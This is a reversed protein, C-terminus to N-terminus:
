FLKIGFAPLITILMVLVSVVFSVTAFILVNNMRKRLSDSKSDLGFLAQNQKANEEIVVAQVNRYVKIAEINTKEMINDYMARFDLSLREDIIEKMAKIEAEMHEVNNLKKMLLNFQEDDLKAFDARTIVPAPEPYKIPPLIIPKLTPFEIDEFEQKMGLQKEIENLEDLLSDVETELSDSKKPEEKEEQPKEAEVPEEAKEELEEELKEEPEEELKEDLKKEAEEAKVEKVVEAIAEEVEQTEDKFLIM